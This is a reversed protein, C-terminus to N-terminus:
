TKGCRSVRGGRSFSRADNTFFNASGCSVGAGSLLFAGLSRIRLGGCHKSTYSNASPLITDPVLMIVDASMIYISFPFTCVLHWEKGDKVCETM